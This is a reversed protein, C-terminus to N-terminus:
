VSETTFQYQNQVSNIYIPSQTVSHIPSNTDSHILSDTEHEYNYNFIITHLAAPQLLSGSVKQPKEAGSENMHMVLEENARM